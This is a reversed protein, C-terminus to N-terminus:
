EDESDHLVDVTPPAPPIEFARLAAELCARQVPSLNALCVEQAAQLHSRISDASPSHADIYHFWAPLRRVAASPETTPSVNGEDSSDSAPSAEAPEGTTAAVDAGQTNEDSIVFYL